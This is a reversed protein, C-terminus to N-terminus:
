SSCIRSLVYTLHNLMCMNRRRRSVRRWHMRTLFLIGPPLPLLVLFLPARSLPAGAERKKGCDRRDIKEGEHQWTRTTAYKGHVRHQLPVLYRSLSRALHPHLYYRSSDVSRVTQLPSPVKNSRLAKEAAQQIPYLSLSHQDSVFNGIYQNCLFLLRFLIYSVQRTQRHPSAWVSSKWTVPKLLFLPSTILTPCRHVLVVTRFLGEKRSIQKGGFGSKKDGDGWRSERVLYRHTHTLTYYGYDLRCPMMTRSYIILPPYVRAKACSALPRNSSGRYLLICLAVAPVVFVTSLSAKGKCIPFSRLALVCM